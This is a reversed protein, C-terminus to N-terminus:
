SNKENSCIRVKQGLTRKQGWNEQLVEFIFFFIKIPNDWQEWLYQFYYGNRQVNKRSISQDGLCHHNADTPSIQLQLCANKLM